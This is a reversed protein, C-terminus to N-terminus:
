IANPEQLQPHEGRWRPYVPNRTVALIYTQRTGRALPSLGVLAQDHQTKQGHEGRWRPYVATTQRDSNTKVTNGAGAPIFRIERYQPLSFHRTGRALPSLGRLLVGDVKAIGHEGRWCPYVPMSNLRKPRATTNGAGAPIFRDGLSLQPLFQQTGRALPSLGADRNAQHQIVRTNGAGAPIFRRLLGASAKHRHTGRALPSLGVVSIVGLDGSHTNGAGAPIFRYQWPKRGTIFLTGRALPSLGILGPPNPRM